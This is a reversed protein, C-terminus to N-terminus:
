VKEDVQLAISPSACSSDSPPASADDNSISLLAQANVQAYIPISVTPGGIYFVQLYLEPVIYVVLQTTAQATPDNFSPTAQFNFNAFPALSSGDYNFGAGVSGSASVSGSITGTAQANFKFGASLDLFLTVPVPIGFIPITGTAISFKALQQSGQDSYVGQATMAAQLSAQMNGYVSASFSQVSYSSIDININTGLNMSGSFTASATGVSDQGNVTFPPINYNAQFPTWSKQLDGTVIFSAVDVVTDVVDTNVVSNLASSFWGRRRGGDIEPKTHLYIPQAESHNTFFSVKMDQFADTITANVVRCTV